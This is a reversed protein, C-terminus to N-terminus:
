LALHGDPSLTSTVTPAIHLLVSTGVGQGNNGARRWALCIRLTFSVLRPRRYFIGCGQMSNHNNLRLPQSADQYLCGSALPLREVAISRSPSPGYGTRTHSGRTGNEPRHAGPTLRPSRSRLREMARQVTRYSIKIGRKALEAAIERSSFHALERLV